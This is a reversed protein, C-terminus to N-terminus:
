SRRRDIHTLPVIDLGVRREDAEALRLFPSFRTSCALLFGIAKMVSSPFTSGSCTDPSSPPATMM